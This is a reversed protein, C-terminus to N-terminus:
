ETDNIPAITALVDVIAEIRTAAHTINKLADIKLALDYLDQLSM